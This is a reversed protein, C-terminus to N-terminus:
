FTITGTGTFVYVHYGGATTVTPAGTTATALDFSDAYRLIVVGSGGSVAYGGGGGGLSTITTLGSGAFSSNNGSAAGVTATYATGAVITIPSEAAAGRGSTGVSTRYGGGGGGPYSAAGGGALVLFDVSVPPNGSSGGRRLSDVQLTSNVHKSRPSLAGGSIAKGGSTNRLTRSM